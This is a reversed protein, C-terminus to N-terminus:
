KLCDVVILGILENEQTGFFLNMLPLNLQWMHSTLGAWLRKQKETIKVYSNKKHLKMGIYGCTYGIINWRMSQYLYVLVELSVPLLLLYHPQSVSVKLSYKMSLKMLPKSLFLIM